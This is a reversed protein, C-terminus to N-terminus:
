RWENSGNVMQTQNGPLIVACAYWHKHTLNMKNYITNSTFTFAACTVHTMKAAVSALAGPRPLACGRQWLTEGLHKQVAVRGFSSIAAPVSVPTHKLKCLKTVSNSTLAKETEITKMEWMWVPKEEGMGALRQDKEDTNPSELACSTRTYVPQTNAGCKGPM